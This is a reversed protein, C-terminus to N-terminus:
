SWISIILRWRRAPFTLLFEPSRSLLRERDSNSSAISWKCCSLSSSRDLSFRRSGLRMVTVYELTILSAPRLVLMDASTFTSGNSILNPKRSSSNKLLKFLFTCSKRRMSFSSFSSPSKLDCVLVLVVPSMSMSLLSRYIRRFSNFSISSRLFASSASYILPLRICILFWSCIYIMFMLNLHSVNLSHKISSVPRYSNGTIKKFTRLMLYSERLYSSM